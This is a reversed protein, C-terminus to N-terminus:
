RIRPLPKVLARAKVPCPNNRRQFVFAVIVITLPIRSRIGTDMVEYEVSVVDDSGWAALDYAGHFLKLAVFLGQSEIFGPHAACKDLDADPHQALVTCFVIGEFLILHHVGSLPGDLSM